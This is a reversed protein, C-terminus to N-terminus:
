HTGLIPFCYTVLLITEYLIQDYGGSLQSCSNVLQCLMPKLIPLRCDSPTKCGNKCGLIMRQVIFSQCPDPNGSLTHSFSIASLHSCVTSAVFKREHLYGIFLAVTSASAPSSLLFPKTSSCFEQCRELFRRYSKRTSAALSSRM